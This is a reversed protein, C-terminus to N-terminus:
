MHTPPREEEEIEVYECSTPVLMLLPTGEETEVYIGAIPAEEGNVSVRLKYLKVTTGLEGAYAVAALGWTTNVGVDGVYLRGDRVTFSSVEVAAGSSLLTEVNEKGFTIILCGDVVIAPVSGQPTELVIVGLSYFHCVIQGSDPDIAGRMQLLSDFVSYPITFYRQTLLKVRSM